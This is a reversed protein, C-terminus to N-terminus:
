LDDADVHRRNVPASKLERSASRSRTARSDRGDPFNLGSVELYLQEPYALYRIKYARGVPGSKKILFSGYGAIRGALTRVFTMDVAEAIPIVTLKRHLGLIIIRASTVVVYTKRWASVRRYLVYCVLLFLLGLIVLVATSDPIVDAAVLAFATVNAALLCVVPFVVSPHRRVTIILRESPLLYRYVEAPTENPFVPMM